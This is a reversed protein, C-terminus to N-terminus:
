RASLYCLTYINAYFYLAIKKPFASRISMSLNHIYAIINYTNAQLFIKQVEIKQIHIETASSSFRKIRLFQFKVKFQM